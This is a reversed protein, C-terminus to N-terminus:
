LSKWANSAPPQGVAAQKSPRGPLWLEFLTSTSMPHLTVPFSM